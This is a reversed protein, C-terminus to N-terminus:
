RREGTLLRDVKSEIRELRRDRDPAQGELAAVRGSLNAWAILVTVLVAALGIVLSLSLSTHESITENTGTDHLNEM